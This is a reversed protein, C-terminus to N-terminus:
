EFAIKLGTITLMLLIFYPILQAARKSVSIAWGSIYAGMIQGLALIIGPIWIIMDAFAFLLTTPITYVLIIILKIYNSKMWDEKYIARIGIIMLIGVGIQIFGGYLGILFFIFIKVAPNLHSLDIITKNKLTGRLELVTYIIMFVLVLLVWFELQEKQINIAFYAGLMAGILTALMSSVPVKLESINGYKKISLVGTLNQFFVGLRNTTNALNLPIGLFLMTGVSVITGSGAVTNIIGTLLGAALLIVIDLASVPNM